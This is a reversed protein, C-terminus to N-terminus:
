KDLKNSPKSQIALISAKVARRFKRAFTPDAILMRALSGAVVGLLWKETNSLRRHSRAQTTEAAGFIQQWTLNDPFDVIARIHSACVTDLGAGSALESAVSRAAVGKSELEVRKWDASEPKLSHAAQEAEKNYIRVFTDSQRSGIYLCQGGNPALVYNWRRVTGLTRNLEYDAALDDIELGSDTADLALDLRTYKAHKLDLASMIGAVSWRGAPGGELAGGPAIFHTGMDVRGGLVQFGAKHQACWLYGNRPKGESWDAPDTLTLDSGWLPLDAYGRSAVPITASIWDLFARTQMQKWGVSYVIGM